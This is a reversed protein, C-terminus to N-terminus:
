FQQLAHLKATVNEGEKESEPGKEEGGGRSAPLRGGRSDKTRGGQM